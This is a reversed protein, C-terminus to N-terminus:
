SFLFDLDNVSLEMDEFNENFVSEVLKKKNEKLKMMKEEITNASIYRKAIVSDTRGIRHARDIAQNEISVNWWPDLLFVYDAKTLNLGVGGAKLSILFVKTNPDEQFEKCPKERDKTSGDLYAISTNIDSLSGKLLKLAQTFQSFVIVKRDEGVVTSIDDLIAQWKGSSSCPTDDFSFLLPNVAIQRLRLIAEFVEMRHKSLGDLTVKKLLNSKFSSLFKEYVSEQEQTMEVFLTQEIKSPLDLNVEEKKRRLFFPHIKEKINKAWRGDVFSIKSIKEFSESDGLLGPLLFHYQSWLDNLSNEIPTGTLSLRCKGQLSFVAEAIKTKSNKIYQAEDLVILAFDTSKIIEYDLRLRAYSIITIFSNELCANKDYITCTAFPLFRQIEKQWNFILSTPAVILIPKKEKFTAIFALVQVTKGLGMEDALIGGLDFKKLFLLWKLGKYQYPWLSGKFNEDVNISADKKSEEYSDKINQLSSDFSIHNYKISKEKFDDFCGYLSKYFSGAVIELDEFIERMEVSSVDILGVKDESIQVFNQRKNFSLVVNEIAVQNLGFSYAGKVKVRKGELMMDIHQSTKLHVSKGEFDKVMWGCELLFAISEYVKDLPCFYKSNGEQKFIYSTELLDQHWMKEVDLNKKSQNSYDIELNAFSGWRDCLKLIPLPLTEATVKDINICLKPYPSDEDAEAFTAAKKDDLLIKSQIWKANLPQRLFLLTIKHIVIIPNSSTFVQVEDFPIVLDNKKFFGEAEIEYGGKQKGEFSFTVKSFFDILLKKGNFYLKGTSAIAKIFDFVKEKQIHILNFAKTEDSDFNGKSKSYRQEEKALDIIIKKESDNVRDLLFSLYLKKSKSAGKEQIALLFNTDQGENKVIEYFIEGENMMKNRVM